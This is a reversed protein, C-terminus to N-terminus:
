KSYDTRGPETKSKDCKNGGLVVRDYAKLPSVSGLRSKSAHKSMWSGDRGGSADKTVPNYHLTDYKEQKNSEM